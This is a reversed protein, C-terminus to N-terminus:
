NDKKHPTSLIREILCKLLTWIDRNLTIGKLQCYKEIVYRLKDDGHGAGFENEAEQVFDVLKFMASNDILTNKTPKRLIFVIVSIILIVVELILRFHTSIFNLIDDM